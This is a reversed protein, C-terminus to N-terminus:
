LEGLKATEVTVRGRTARPAPAAATSVRRIGM